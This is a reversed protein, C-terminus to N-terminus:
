FFICYLVRNKNKTTTKEGRVCGIAAMVGMRHRGRGWKVDACLGYEPAVTSISSQPNESLGHPPREHSPLLACMHEYISASFRCRTRMRQRLHRTHAHQRSGHHTHTHARVCVCPQRALIHPWQPKTAQPIFAVWIFVAPVAVNNASEVLAKTQIDARKNKGSRLLRVAICKHIM